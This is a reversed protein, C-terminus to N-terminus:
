HTTNKIDTIKKAIGLDIFEDIEAQDFCFKLIENEFKEPDKTYESVWIMNNKSANGEAVKLQHQANRKIFQAKSRIPYHLIWINNSTSKKGKLRASHSGTRVRILGEPRVAIKGPLSTLILSHQQYKDEISGEVKPPNAVIYDFALFDNLMVKDKEPFVNFRKATICSSKQELVKKLTTHPSVQWFEDADSIIVWDAKYERRAISVIENTWDAQQMLLDNKILIRINYDKSLADLIERTKDKSQHLVIIFQDVGLNHHHKIVQEIIDDEDRIIMAHVLVNCVSKNMHFLYDITASITTIAKKINKLMPSISITNLTILIRHNKIM